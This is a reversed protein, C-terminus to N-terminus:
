SQVRTAIKVRKKDTLLSINAKDVTKQEKLSPNEARTLKLGREIHWEFDQSQWFSSLHELMELSIIEHHQDMLYDFLSIETPYIIENFLDPTM